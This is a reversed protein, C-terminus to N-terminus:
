KEKEIKRLEEAIEDLGLKFPSFRMLYDPGSNILVQAFALHPDKLEEAKERLKSVHYEITPVSVGLREAVQKNTYGMGRLIVLDMLKKPTIKEEVM